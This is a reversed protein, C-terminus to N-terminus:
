CLHAPPISESLLAAHTHDQSWLGCCWSTFPCQLQLFDSFPLLCIGFLLPVCKLFILSLCWSSQVLAQICSNPSPLIKLKQCNKRLSFCSKGAINMFFLCSLSSSSDLFEQLLLYLSESLRLSGWISICLVIIVNCTGWPVGNERKVLIACHVSFSM